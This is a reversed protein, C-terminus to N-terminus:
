SSAAYIVSCSASCISCARQIDAISDLDIVRGPVTLLQAAAEGPPTNDSSQQPSDEVHNSAQRESSSSSKTPSLIYRTLNVRQPAINSTAYCLSGGSSSTRAAVCMAPLLQRRLHPALM